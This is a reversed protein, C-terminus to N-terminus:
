QSNMFQENPVFEVLASSIGCKSLSNTQFPDTESLALEVYHSNKKQDWFYRKTSVRDIVLINSYFNLFKHSFELKKTTKWILHLHISFGVKYYWSM